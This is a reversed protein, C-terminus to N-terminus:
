IYKELNGEDKLESIVEDLSYTEEDKRSEIILRDLFDDILDGYQEYSIQVAVKKNNEDTVFQIGEM